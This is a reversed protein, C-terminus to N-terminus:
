GNQLDEPVDICKVIDSGSAIAIRAKAATENHCVDPYLQWGSKPSNKYFAIVPKFVAKNQKAKPNDTMYPKLKPDNFNSHVGPRSASVPTPKNSKESHRQQKVVPIPTEPLHLEKVM